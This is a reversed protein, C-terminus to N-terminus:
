KLAELHAVVYSINNDAHWQTPFHTYLRCERFYNQQNIYQGQQKRTYYWFSNQNWFSIHTPDQFAGRGDTSPTSSIFMGGPILVRHIENMLHQSNKIHELADYARIVGVSNDQLPIGDELNAIIDGNTKDISVFNIPKGFGGCLDVKLVKNIDAFRCALNFVNNDYLEVTRKQIVKNNTLWTNNGDIRYIYLVKPIFYFKTELYLRHM